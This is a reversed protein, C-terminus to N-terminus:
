GRAAPSSVSATVEASTAAFTVARAPEIAGERQLFAELDKGELFEMVLWMRHDDHGVDLMQAVVSIMYVPKDKSTM